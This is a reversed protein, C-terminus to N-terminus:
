RHSCHVELYTINNSNTVEPGNSDEVTLNNIEMSWKSIQQKRNKKSKIKKVKLKISEWSIKEYTEKCLTSWILIVQDVM